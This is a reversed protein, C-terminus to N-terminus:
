GRICSGTTCININHNISLNLRVKHSYLIDWCELVGDHRSTLFLSMRLPSWCGGTLRAPSSKMSMISSAKIDECWIKATHERVILVTLLRCPKHKRSRIVLVNKPYFSNRHVALTRSRSGDDYMGLIMNPSGPKPVMRCNIVKGRRTGVM